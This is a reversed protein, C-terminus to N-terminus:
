IRDSAGSNRGGSSINKTENGTKKFIMIKTKKANLEMGYEKCVRCLSSIMHQLDEPNECLFVTDDAYRIDGLTVGNFRIGKNGDLAERILQRFYISFLIPM